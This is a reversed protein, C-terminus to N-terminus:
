RSTAPAAKAAEYDAALLRRFADEPSADPQQKEGCGGLAALCLCLALLACTLRKKMFGGGNRDIISVNYVRFPRKTM